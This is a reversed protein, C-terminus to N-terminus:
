ENILQLRESYEMPRLDVRRATGSKLREVILGEALIAANLLM